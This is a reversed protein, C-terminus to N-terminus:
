VQEEGDLDWCEEPVPIFSLLIMQNTRGGQWGDGLLCTGDVLWSDLWGDLGSDRLLLLYGPWSNALLAQAKTLLAQCIRSSWATLWLNGLKLFGVYRCVKLLGRTLEGCDQSWYNVGYLGIYKPEWRRFCPGLFTRFTGMTWSRVQPRWYCRRQQQALFPAGKELHCKIHHVM